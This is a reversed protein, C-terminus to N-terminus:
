TALTPIDVFDSVKVHVSKLHLSNQEDDAVFELFFVMAMKSPITSLQKEFTEPADTDKHLLASYKASFMKQRDTNLPYANNLYELLEEKTGEYLTHIKM